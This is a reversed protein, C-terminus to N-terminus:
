GLSKTHTYIIQLVPNNKHFGIQNKNILGKEVCHTQIRGNLLSSLIKLLASAVCIGRYNNLDREDGKKHILSILEMTWSNPVLSKELCLNLFRLIVDHIIDPSSKIMENSIGDNGESKNNKLNRILGKFENKSFPRELNANRPIESPVEFEPLNDSNTENHLTSFHTFLKQGPIKISSQKSNSEGFNKWKEWFLKPDTLSNEVENLNKQLFFYKKSKCNRKYEKLKEHYKERLLSNSPSILKEQGIKRVEQKLSKCENDYWKKSKKRTKWKKEDRMSKEQYTSKATNIFLKQILEGTSHILGADLRQNIEEIEKSSNRLKNSFMTERKKDWKYLKGRKKWKYNDDREELLPVVGKKFFTVIKSHDSLENM